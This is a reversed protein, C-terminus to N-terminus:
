LPLPIEVGVTIPFENIPKNDPLIGLGLHWVQGNKVHGLMKCYRIADFYSIDKLRVLINAADNMAINVANGYPVACAICSFSNEKIIVPRPSYYVEEKHVSITVESACEIGMGLWEGWGQAAHVDGIYFLGGDHHAKLCVSHNERIDRYDLNGGGDSLDYKITKSIDEDDSVKPTVSVVGIMPEVKAKLGGPMIVHDGDIEIFDTIQGDFNL